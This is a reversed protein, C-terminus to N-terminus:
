HDWTKRIRFQCIHLTASPANTSTSESPLQMAKSELHLLARSLKQLNASRGLKNWSHAPLHPIHKCNAGFNGSTFSLKEFYIGM